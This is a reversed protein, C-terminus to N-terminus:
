KHDLHTHMSSWEIRMGPVMKAVARAVKQCHGDQCATTKFHLVYPDAPDVEVDIVEPVSKLKEIQESTPLIGDLFRVKMCTHDSHHIETASSM